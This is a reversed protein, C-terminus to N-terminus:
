DKLNLMVQRVCERFTEVIGEGKIASTPFDPYDDKNLIKRLQDLPPINKLDVKNYQVIIPIEDDQYGMQTLHGKLEKLYEINEQAKELQADAVFILGDANKLLLKRSNEYM